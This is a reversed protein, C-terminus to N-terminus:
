KKKRHKMREELSSYSSNKSPMEVCTEYNDFHYEVIELANKVLERDTKMLEYLKDAMWYKMLINESMNLIKAIKTVEHREFKNIRNEKRNYKTESINLNKSMKAQTIGSYMRTKKIIDNLM